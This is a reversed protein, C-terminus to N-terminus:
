VFCDHDSLFFVFLARYFLDRPFYQGAICGYAHRQIKHKSRADSISQVGLVDPPVPTCLKHSIVKVLETLKCSHLHSTFSLPSFRHVDSSFHPACMFDRKRKLFIQLETSSTEKKTQQKEPWVTKSRM